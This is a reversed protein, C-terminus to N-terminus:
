MQQIIGGGLCVQDNYFVVAQGPTIDRLNSSFKVHAKGESLPTVIGTAEQARYRIKISAKFCNEPTKGSIWNVQHAILEDHGLEDLTGIILANRFVDKDLVYLPKPSSIRIGKRQGITYFALGAHEGIKEGSKNIIPGPKQFEASHRTLFLRYDEKGLFCLDQSEPREAVPLNFQRALQRVQPKTLSGLPFLTHALQDQQLIHLIYSQDKTTDVARLLQWKGNDGLQSRAYHGTALFDAGM